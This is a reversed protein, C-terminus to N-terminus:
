STDRRRHLLLANLVLFTLRLPYHRCHCAQQLPATSYAAACHICDLGAVQSALAVLLQWPWM